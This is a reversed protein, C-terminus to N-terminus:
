GFILEGKEIPLNMYNSDTLLFTLLRNKICNCLSFVFINKNTYITSISKSNYLTIVVKYTKNKELCFYIIGNYTIGEKILCNNNYIKVKAQYYQNYGTGLIKFKINQM